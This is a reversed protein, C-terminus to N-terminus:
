AGGTAFIATCVSAVGGMNPKIAAEEDDSGKRQGCKAATPQSLEGHHSGM